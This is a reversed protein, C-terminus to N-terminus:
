SLKLGDDEPEEKIVKKKESKLNSKIDNKLALFTRVAKDDGTKAKDTVVNYIEIIDNQSKDYLFLNILEKYEKTKEWTNYYYNFKVVSKDMYKEIFEKESMKTFDFKITKYKMKFFFYYKKYVNKIQIM